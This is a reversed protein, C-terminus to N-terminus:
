KNVYVKHKSGNSIVINVGKSLKEKKDGGIGFISSIQTEDVGLTEIGSAKSIEYYNSWPSTIGNKVVNIRIKTVGKNILWKLSISNEAIDKIMEKKTTPFFPNTNDIAIHEINYYDANEIEEWIVSFGNDNIAFIEKINPEFIEKDFIVDFSIRGYEDEIISGIERNMYYTRDINRNFLLGGTETHSTNTLWTVNYQGPFLDGNFEDSSNGYSNDAPIISFRQHEPNPNVINNKWAQEDYDVHTVMLGHLGEYSAVYRFWKSPQHNEIIYYENRNGQNYIVYAEPSDELNNIDEIRCTGTIEIPELWGSVWREYASYGYPIEGRKNPGSHSGSNMLDWYSMGFAGSYDTDYLDPIGLCHSFEHCATGIGNIISGSNGALECSCAYTNIIIGDITIANNGLQSEHPWITNSSAGNSEGYGAYILFVQDVEGDNNWDYDKFNVKGKVQQCAEVVMERVNKDSGYFESNGGYYEYNKSVKVPGIVDFTLDFKGYSQDYFYDHVSGISNNESYGVENFLRNFRDNANKSKMDLNQFDVLIVLGKKSGLYKHFDGLARTRVSKINDQEKVINYKKRLFEVVNSNAQIFNKEDITRDIENHALFTSIKLTNNDIYGYYYMSDKEFVPVNDTTVFYHVIEDGVLRLQITTGDSQKKIFAVSMSPVSLLIDASLILAIIVLIVKRM